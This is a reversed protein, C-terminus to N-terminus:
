QQNGLLKKTSSRSLYCKPQYPNSEIAKDYYKLAKEFKEQEFYKEAKSKFTDAPDPGSLLYRFVILYEKSIKTDNVRAPIWKDLELKDVALVSSTSLSFDPSSKVSINTLTGHENIVVSLVVNGQINRRIAEQPYRLTKAIIPGIEGDTYKAKITDHRSYSTSDTQAHVNISFLALLLICIFLTTRHM